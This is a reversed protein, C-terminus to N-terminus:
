RKLEKIKNELDKIKQNVPRLREKFEKKILHRQYKLSGIEKKENEM